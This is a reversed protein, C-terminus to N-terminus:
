LREPGVSAQARQLYSLMTTRLNSRIVSFSSLIRSFIYFM